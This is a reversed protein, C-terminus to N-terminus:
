EIGESSGTRSGRRRRRYGVWGVLGRHRSDCQASVRKGTKVRRGRLRDVLLGEPLDEDQAEPVALDDRRRVEVPLEHDFPM